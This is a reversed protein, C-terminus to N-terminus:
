GGLAKLREDIDNRMALLEERESAPDPPATEWRSVMDGIRQVFRTLFSKAGANSAAPQPAPQPETSPRPPETSQPRAPAAPSPPSAANPVHRVRGDSGLRATVVPIEGAEELHKRETEVIRHLNPNIEEQRMIEADSLGPNDLLAQRVRQREPSPQKQPPTKPEAEGEGCWCAASHKGTKATTFEYRHIREELKSFNELDQRVEAVTPHSAGVLEAIARNSRSADERLALGILTRTADTKNQTAEVRERLGKWDDSTWANTRNAAISVALRKDMPVRDQRAPWSPDIERRHHGDVVNGQEDELVPFYERLDGLLRMSELILEKRGPTVRRHGRHVAAADYENFLRIAHAASNRMEREDKPWVTVSDAKRGKGAPIIVLPVGAAFKGDLCWLGDDDQSVIERSALQELADKTLADWPAKFSGWTTMVNNSKYQLTSASIGTLHESSTPGNDLLENLIASFLDPLPLGGGSGEGTGALRGLREGEHERRSSM